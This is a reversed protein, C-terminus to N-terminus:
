DLYIKYKIIQAIRYDTNFVLQMSGATRMALDPLGHNLM